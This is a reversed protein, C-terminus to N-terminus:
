NLASSGSCASVMRSRIAFPTLTVAPVGLAVVGGGVRISGFFNTLIGTGATGGLFASVGEPSSGVVGAGVVAAVGTASVWGSNSGTM